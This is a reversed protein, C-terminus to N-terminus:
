TVPIHNQNIVINVYQLYEALIYKKYVQSIDQIIDTHFNIGKSYAFAKVAHSFRDAENPDCETKAEFRQFKTSDTKLTLTQLGTQEAVTVLYFRSSRSTASKTCVTYVTKPNNINTQM